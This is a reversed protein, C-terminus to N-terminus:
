CREEVDADVQDLAERADDARHVEVVSEDGESRGGGEGGVRMWWFCVLSANLGKTLEDLAGAGSKEERRKPHKAMLATCHSLFM